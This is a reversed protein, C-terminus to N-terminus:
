IGSLRRITARLRRRLVTRARQLDRDCPNGLKKLQAKVANIEMLAAQIDGVVAASRGLREGSSALQQLLRSLATIGDRRRVFLQVGCRECVFYPKNSKAVRVPLPGTCVPCPLAGRCEEGTLTTRM